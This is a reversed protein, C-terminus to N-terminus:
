QVHVLSVAPAQAPFLCHAWVILGLCMLDITSFMVAVVFRTLRDLDLTSCYGYNIKVSFNESHMPGSINIPVFINM